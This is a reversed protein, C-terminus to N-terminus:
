SVGVQEPYMDPRIDRGDDCGGPQWCHVWAACGATIACSRRCHAVDPQLNFKGPVAVVAQLRTM